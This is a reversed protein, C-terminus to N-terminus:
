HNKCNGKHSLGLGYGSKFYVYECSDIVITGSDSWFSDAGNDCSLVAFFLCLLFLIKRM